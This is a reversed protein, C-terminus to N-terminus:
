DLFLDRIKQDCEEFSYAEILGYRFGNQLFLSVYLQAAKPKSTFPPGIIKPPNPEKRKEYVFWM